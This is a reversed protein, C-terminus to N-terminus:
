SPVTGPGLGPSISVPDRRRAVGGRSEELARSAMLYRVLNDPSPDDSFEIVADRFRAFARRESPSVNQM